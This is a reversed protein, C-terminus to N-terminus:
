EKVCPMFWDLIIEDAGNEVPKCYRTCTYVESWYFDSYDLRYGNKQAADNILTYANNLIDDFNKGSIQAKAIIGKPIIRGTLGDPIPTDPNFYKGVIYEDGLGSDSKFDRAYGIGINEDIDKCQSDKMANLKKDAGSNFYVDWLGRGGVGKEKSSVGILLRESMEEYTIKVLNAMIRVGRMVFYTENKQFSFREYSNNKLIESTLATPPVGFYEKVARTFASHSEYGYELAVDIINEKNKLIDFGALTLKRKRAYEAISIGCIYSFIRQYLGIPTSTIKEIKEYDVEKLNKEICDIVLDIEKLYSV